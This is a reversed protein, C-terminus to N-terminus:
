PNRATFLQVNLEFRCLGSPLRFRDIHREVAATAEKMREEPVNLFRLMADDILADSPVRVVIRKPTRSVDSFGAEALIRRVHRPDGFAFPGTPSAGPAPPPPPPVFPGIASGTFWTNRDMPQWCAFALRGGKKLHGRINAFAVMPQSFFMVGFQSIAVDFPGGSIKDAQVDAVTFTANKSKAETARGQALRVMGESIDAGVAKGGPLAAAAAALTTKGGGAGIDLVSEGPRILAAALLRPTV